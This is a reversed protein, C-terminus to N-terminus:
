ATITDSIGERKMRECLTRRVHAIGDVTLLIGDKLYNCYLERQTSGSSEISMSNIEHQAVIASVQVVKREKNELSGKGGTYSAAAKAAQKSAAILVMYVCWELPM